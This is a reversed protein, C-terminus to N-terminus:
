VNSNTKLSNLKNKVNDVMVGIYTITMPLLIGLLLIYMYYKEILKNVMVTDKFIFIALLLIVIGVFISFYNEKKNIKILKKLGISVFHVTLILYIIVDALFQLSLFRELREIITFISFQRLAMYIPYRYINIVDIGLILITTIIVIALSFVSVAFFALVKKKSYEKKVVKNQPIITMLFIPTSISLAFILSSHLISKVDMSFVPLLNYYSFESVLGFLSLVFIGLNIFLVIQSIRAITAINKTAAYIVPMMILIKVYISSTDPIYQIDVYQTIVDLILTGLFAFVINLIINLINGFFKGFLKTNLDLIDLNDKNKSITMFMAFPILAILFGVLTSIHTDVQSIKFMLYSGISITLARVLTFIFSQYGFFSIREVDQTNSSIENQQM